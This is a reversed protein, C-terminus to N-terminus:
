TQQPVMGIVLSTSLFGGVAIMVVKQVKLGSKMEQVSRQGM